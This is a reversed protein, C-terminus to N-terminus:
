EVGCVQMPQLGEAEDNEADAMRARLAPVEVIPRHNTEYGYTLVPNRGTLRYDSCKNGWRWPRMGIRGVAWAM